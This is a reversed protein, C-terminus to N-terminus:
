RRVPTAHVAYLWSSSGPVLWPVLSRYPGNRPARSLVLEFLPVPDGLREQLGGLPCDGRNAAVLVGEGILTAVAVRLLRDRRGTIACWWVYAIACLQEVAIAAHFVRFSMAARSLKMELRPNHREM